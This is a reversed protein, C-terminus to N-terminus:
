CSLARGGRARPAPKEVGRAASTRHGLSKKGEKIVTHPRGPLVRATDRMGSANLALDVIQRKVEPSPGPSADDLLCPRGACRQARCRDRQKGPRTQGHRVSDTGHCSPWHLVQIIM